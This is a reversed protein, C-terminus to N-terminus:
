AVWRIRAAMRDSCGPGGRQYSAACAIIAKDTNSLDVLLGTKINEIGADILSTVTLLNLRFDDTSLVTAGLTKIKAKYKDRWPYKTKFKQTSFLEKHVTSITSCGFREDSFM